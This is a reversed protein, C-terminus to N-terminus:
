KIEFCILKKPHSELRPSFIYKVKGEDEDRRNFLYRGTSVRFDKGYFVWDCAQNKEEIKNVIFFGQATGFQIHAVIEKGQEFASKIDTLVEVTEM